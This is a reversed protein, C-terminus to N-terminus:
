GISQSHTIRTKGSQIEYFKWIRTLLEINKAKEMSNTERQLFFVKM